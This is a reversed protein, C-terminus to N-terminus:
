GQFKIAQELQDIAQNCAAIAQAKHGGFDHPAKQLDEVAGHLARVAARLRPHRDGKGAPAAPAPTQASAAGALLLGALAPAAFTLRRAIPM